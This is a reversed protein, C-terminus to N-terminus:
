KEAIHKPTTVTTKANRACNKPLRIKCTARLINPMTPPGKSPNNTQARKKGIM